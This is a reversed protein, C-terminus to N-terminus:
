SAFLQSLSLAFNPLLDGGTLTDELTLRTFQKTAPTYITITQEEPEVLWVVQVGDELYLRIKRNVHSIRDTPSVIEIALDPPGILTQRAM